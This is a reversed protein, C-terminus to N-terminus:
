RSGCKDSIQARLPTMADVGTVWLEEAMAALHSYLDLDAPRIVLNPRRKFGCQFPLLEILMRSHPSDKDILTLNLTPFSRYTRVSFRQRLRPSLTASLARLNALTATSQAVLISPERVLHQALLRLVLPEGALWEPDVLMMRVRVRKILSTWLSFYERSCTNSFAIGIRLVDASASETFDLVRSVRNEGTSVDAIGSKLISPFASVAFKHPASPPSTEQMSRRVALYDAFLSIVFGSLLYCIWELLHRDTGYGAIILVTVMSACVVTVSVTVVPLWSLITGM